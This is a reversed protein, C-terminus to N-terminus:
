FNAVCCKFRTRIMWKQKKRFHWADDKSHVNKSTACSGLAWQSGTPETSFYIERIRTDATLDAMNRVLVRIRILCCLTDPPLWVNERSKQAIASFADNSLVVRLRRNPVAKSKLCCLISISHLIPLRYAEMTLTTNCSTPTVCIYCFM